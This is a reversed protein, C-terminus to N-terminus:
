PKVKTWDKRPCDPRECEKNAGAPCICGVPTVALRPFFNERPWDYHSRDDQYFRATWPDYGDVAM